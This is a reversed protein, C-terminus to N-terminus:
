CGMYMSKCFYFLTELTCGSHFRREKNKGWKENASVVRTGLNFSRKGSSTDLRNIRNIYMIYYFLIFYRVYTYDLFLSSYTITEIRTNVKAQM